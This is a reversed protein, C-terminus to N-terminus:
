EKNMENLDAKKIDLRKNLIEKLLEKEAHVREFEKIVRDLEHVRRVISFDKKRIMKKNHLYLLCIVFLLLFIGGLFIFITCYDMNKYNAICLHSFRPLFINWETRLKNWWTRKKLM